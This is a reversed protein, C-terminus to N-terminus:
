QAPRLTEAIQKAVDDSVMNSKFGVTVHCRGRGGKGPVSLYYQTSVEGRYEIKSFYFVQKDTNEIMRTVGLMKQVADPMPQLRDVDSTLTAMNEMM